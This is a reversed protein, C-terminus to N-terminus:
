SEGRAKAIVARASSKAEALFALESKEGSARQSKSVARLLGDLASVLAFVQESADDLIKAADPESQAALVRLELSVNM